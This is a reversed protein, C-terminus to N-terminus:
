NDKIGHRFHYTKFQYKSNKLLLIRIGISLSAGWIPFFLVKGFEYGSKM